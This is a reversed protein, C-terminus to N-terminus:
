VVCKDVMDLARKFADEPTCGKFPRDVDVAKQDIVNTARMYVRFKAEKRTIMATRYVISKGADEPM